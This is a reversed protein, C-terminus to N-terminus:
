KLFLEGQFNKSKRFTFDPFLIFYDFDFYKSLKEPTTLFLSTAIGDATITDKAVVWTALINEPSKLNKADIIHHFGSWRRRNGSSACISKDNIEVVGIVQKFDNPNELGVRMPSELNHCYMDGGADVCFSEVGNEKLLDSIIDVLYGKGLGGFDLIYPKKMTLTPYNWSYVESIDPVKNIKKPSLSYSSDYGAESLTNGILVTFSKDTIQYLSDYLQFLSKSDPPLIYEGAKRSAKYVVSDSRFRSYTKDFEEIRDLVLSEIENKDASSNFCDIVWRTGIAEFSLKFDRM